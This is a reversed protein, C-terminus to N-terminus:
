LYRRHDLYIIKTVSVLWDTFSVGAPPQWRIMRSPWLLICIREKQRSLAPWFHVLGPGRTLVSTSDIDIPAFPSIRREVPKRLVVSYM